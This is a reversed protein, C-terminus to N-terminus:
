TVLPSWHAGVKAWVDGAGAHVRAMVQLIQRFGPHQIESSVQVLVMIMVCPNQPVHPSRM